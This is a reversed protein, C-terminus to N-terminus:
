NLNNILDIKDLLYFKLLYHASVQIKVTYIKSMLIIWTTIMRPINLISIEEKKRKRKQNQNEKSLIEM